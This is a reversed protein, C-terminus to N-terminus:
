RPGFNTYSSPNQWTSFTKYRLVSQYIFTTQVEAV